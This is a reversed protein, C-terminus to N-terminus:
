VHLRKIIKIEKNLNSVEAKKANYTDIYEKYLQEFGDISENSKLYIKMYEEYFLKKKEKEDISFLSPWFLGDRHRYMSM